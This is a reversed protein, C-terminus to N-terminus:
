KRRENNFLSSRPVQRVGSASLSHNIMQSPDPGLILTEPGLVKIKDKEPPDGHSVASMDSM